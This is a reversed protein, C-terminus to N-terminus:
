TQDKQAHAAVIEARAKENYNRIKKVLAVFREDNLLDGFYPDQEMPYVFDTWVLRFGKEYAADLHRMAEDLDGKIAMIEALRYHVGATQYEPWSSQYVAQVRQLLRDAQETEGLKILAAAALTAAYTTQLSVEPDETFLAPYLNELRRRSDAFDGTLYKAQVGLMKWQTPSGDQDALTECAAVLVKIDDEQLADLLINIGDSLPGADVKSIADMAMRHEGLNIYISFLNFYVNTDLTAASNILELLTAEAAM